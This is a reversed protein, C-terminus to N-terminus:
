RTMGPEIAKALGEAHEVELLFAKEIQPSIDELLQTSCVDLHVETDPSGYKKSTSRYRLTEQSPSGEMASAAQTHCIHLAQKWIALLVFQISFAELQRDAEIKQFCCIKNYNSTVSLQKQKKIVKKQGSCSLCTLYFKWQFFLSMYITLCTLLALSADYPVLM